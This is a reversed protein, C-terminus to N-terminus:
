DLVGCKLHRKKTALQIRTNNYFWIYEDILDKAHSFDSFKYRNICEAKIISFFNEAMANDYCNGRRSMSPKIKYETLLKHYRKSTYQLGQDSHLVLGEAVEKKALKLTDLVLNVNQTTSTQYSVISKDYLDRIVSLYLFGKATPIYSIDTVWKENPKSATFDQKLKNDYVHHVQGKFKYKRQRRIKSLLDHKAMLRYITKPNRYVGQKQLWIHVRRYGYTNKTELQCDRIMQIIDQNKATSNRSNHFKYYGSRSVNFFNCMTAVPYNEKNNYIVLYKIKAKV